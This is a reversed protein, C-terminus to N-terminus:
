KNMRKRQERLTLPSIGQQRQCHLPVSKTESWLATPDRWCQSRPGCKCLLGPRKWDTSLVSSLAHPGGVCIWQAPPLWLRWPLKSRHLFVCFCSKTMDNLDDMGQYMFPLSLLLVSNASLICRARGKLIFPSQAVHENKLLVHIELDKYTAYMRYRVLFSGDHRDLVQIWIRVFPEKPSVMKVEFTKEGPSFTLSLLLFVLSHKLLLLVFNFIALTNM